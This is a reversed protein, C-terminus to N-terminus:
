LSDLYNHIMRRNIPVDQKSELEFIRTVAFDMTMGKMLRELIHMTIKVLKIQNILIRKQESRYVVAFYKRINLSAREHRILHLDEELTTPFHALFEEYVTRLKQFSLYELSISRSEVICALDDEKVNFTLIKIFKLVKTNLKQYFIKFHRSQVDMSGDEVKIKNFSDKENKDQKDVSFFKSIIYQRYKFEEDNQELRLKIYMNNYKNSTLCFGYRKLADRNSM